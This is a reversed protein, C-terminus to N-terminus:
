QAPKEGSVIEIKLPKVTDLHIDRQPFAMAIGAEGLRKEIMHRLDSAVGSADTGPVVNVWFNLGFQLANDGFDEFLVHPAPTKLVLGHEEAAQNLIETVLRPSCGYAVGVKVRFRAHRNSHTWNVVEKELFTSNPIFIEIGDSNRILSSRLGISTVTGHTGGADVEDGVRLPREILLIIGSVFNQLLNQMGFGLGVALAGGAFAFVTLPIKAALLSFIALIVVLFFKIWRRALDVVPVDVLFRSLVFRSTVYALFCCLFYGLFLTLLVKGVKGVTVSRRGVIQQGDVTITDDVSVIELNWLQVGCVAVRAYLDQLHGAFSLAQRDLDLSEQWRLLLRRTREAAHLTRRCLEDREKYTDCKEKAWDRKVVTGGNGQLRDKDEAGVASTIEMQRRFYDEYLEVKKLNSELKRYSEQLQKFDKLGYSAFRLEWIGRELNLGDAIIRLAELKKAVTEAQEGRLEVLAQLQGIHEQNGPAPAASADAPQRMTRNLEDRAAALAGQQRPYDAEAERIEAKVSDLEGDLVPFVTALDDKTFRVSATAISLQKERFAQQQQQEAIEILATARRTDYNAIRAAVCRSKLQLFALEWAQRATTARAGGTEMQERIQRIKTEYTKLEEKSDEIVKAALAGAARAADLKATALQIADRLKDSLLISYPPRESFGPWSATEQRIDEQRKRVAEQVELLILHNQYTRILWRLQTHAEVVEGPTAGEPVHDNAGAALSEQLAREADAVQQLLQRSSEVTSVTATGEATAGASRGADAVPLAGPLKAWVPACAMVLLPLLFVPFGCSKIPCRRTIPM